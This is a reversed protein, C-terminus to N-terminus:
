EIDFKKVQELWHPNKQVAHAIVGTFYVEVGGRSPPAPWILVPDPLNHPVVFVPKGAGFDVAYVPVSGSGTPRNIPRQM